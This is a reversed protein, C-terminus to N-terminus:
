FSPVFLSNSTVESVKAFFVVIKTAIAGGGVAVGYLVVAFIMVGATIRRANEVVVPDFAWDEGRARIPAAAIDM